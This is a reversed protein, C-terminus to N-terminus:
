ARQERKAPPRLRAHARALPGPAWWNLPGLISMFSPVLLMRVLTVDIGVGLVQGVTLEKVFFERSSALALLAVALLMAARTIVPGTREIGLAVAQEDSAGAEHEETIRSLLLISYDTALGFTSAIIVVTVTTEIASPGPYALLGAIGLANDQFILVLLGFAAGLDLAHFLLAKGALVVSGTLLFLTIITALAALAAALPAHQEISRKLDVFEATTGGVVVAPGVARLQAVLHESSPSLPPQDLVLQVLATRRSGFQIPTAFAVDPAFRLAAAFQTPTLGRLERHGLEIAVDVPYELNPSFDRSVAETVSRAQFGTPISTLSPFTFQLRLAPGAAAILVLVTVLAVDAHHRMVWRPWRYWRRRERAGADDHGARVGVRRGGLLLLPPTVVLAAAASFLAVFVGAIGMSYIFEQPFLLLAACAGAVACGSFVVARGATRLTARVADVGFGRERAEERYRSVLFLGYDVALGLGLLVALNLAFISIGLVNSLLRLCAITGIVSVGGTLVPIAAAVLGRFILLVLLALLPFAILEARVLDSRAIANVDLVGVAYGGFQLALGPERLHGRLRNIPAAVADQNISRFHVLLLTEHEDRSLLVPLGHAGFASQVEGVGPDRSAENALLAVARRAASTGFGIRSRALIVM